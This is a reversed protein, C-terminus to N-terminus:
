RAVEGSKEVRDRIRLLMLQTGNLMNQYILFSEDGALRDQVLEESAAIKIKLLEGELEDLMVLDPSSNLQHIVEDIAQYYVDIRNRRANDVWNRIWSISSWVLLVLTLVFGMSEAHESLFSPNQRFYYNEAGKHVPFQLESNAFSEDLYTFTSERASLIARKQFLTQTIIRSTENNLDSSCALVADVSMSPSPRLPRGEYALQPIVNPSVHPYHVRFGDVLQRAVADPAMESNGVKIDSLVLDLNLMADSIAPSGLGTLFFAADIEGSKLKSLVDGSPLSFMQGEDLSINAFDLLERTIQYTGSQAAGVSVKKGSLDGLSLINADRRSILHLLEPYLAAISSVGEECKADNQILALQCKGNQLAQINENSGQSKEVKIRLKPHESEIARKIELGMKNYLGGESGTYFTITTPNPARLFHWIFTSVLLFLLLCIASHSRGVESSLKFIRVIRIMRMLRLAFLYEGEVGPILSFFTPLIAVLDVIGWFSRAYKRPSGASYFRLAYEISFVITFFWEIGRTVKEWRVMNPDLSFGAIALSTLIAIFVALDFIKGMPTDREHIVKRLTARVGAKQQVTSSM